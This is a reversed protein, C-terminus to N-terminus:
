NSIQLSGLQKLAQLAVDKDGGCAELFAKASRLAEFDLSSVKAATVSPVQKRVTTGKRKPTLGLKKRTNFFAVSASNKNLSEKPYKAELARFAEGSTLSSNKALMERFEASMNFGSKKAM